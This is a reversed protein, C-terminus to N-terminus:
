SAMVNIVLNRRMPGNKPGQIPRVSHWSNFTKIFVVGANPVFEFTDLIDMDEFGAQENLQNFALDERKPHHLDLGGGYATDWEGKRAMSLTMTVIKSAADPQPLLYGGDRSMMQFKM